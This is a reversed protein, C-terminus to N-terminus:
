RMMPLSWILSSNRALPKIGVITGFNRSINTWSRSFSANAPIQYKICCARSVDTAMVSNVVLARFRKQEDLSDGYIEFRLAAFRDQMLLKWTLDVSNQEAVSRYRYLEGLAPNEEILRANAVGPHGADHIIASFACAFQTLPDSTIGYTHDHLKSAAEVVKCDGLDPAVIRSMLKIVSM